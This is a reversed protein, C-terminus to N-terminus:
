RRRKKAFLMRSLYFVLFMILVGALIFKLKSSNNSNQSSASQTSSNTKSNQNLDNQDVIEVYSDQFFGNADEIRLLPFVQNTGPQYKHTQKASEGSQGDGFDWFYSVISSSNATATSADFKLDQGFKFHLVDTIPDKSKQGNISIVPRPLQYNENPLINVLVKELIQPTPTTRDDVYLDIVYSGIKTYTHNIVTGQEKEGDGINWTFKSKRAIEKPVPLKAMDVEFHLNQDVLYNKPAIDLPLNFDSLSSSYVPYSLAYEGNIKFFPIGSPHAFVKQSFASFLFITLFIIISM